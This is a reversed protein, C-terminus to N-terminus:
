EIKKKERKKLLRQAESNLEEASIKGIEMYIQLARNGEIEQGQTIGHARVSIARLRIAEEPSGAKEFYNKIIKKTPDTQFEKLYPKFAEQITASFLKKKNRLRQTEATASSIPKRPAGKKVSQKKRPKNPNDMLWAFDSQIIEDVIHNYVRNHDKFITDGPTIISYCQRLVEHLIDLIEQRAQKFNNLEKNREQSIKHPSSTLLYTDSELIKNVFSIGRLVAGRFAFLEELSLNWFFDPMMNEHLDKLRIHAAKNSNFRDWFGLNVPKKQEKKPPTLKNNSEEEGKLINIAWTIANEETKKEKAKKQNEKLEETKKRTQIQTLTTILNKIEENELLKDSEHGVLEPDKDALSRALNKLDTGFQSKLKNKEDSRLQFETFLNIWYKESDLLKHEGVEQKLIKIIRKIANDWRTLRARAETEKKVETRAKEEIISRITTGEKLFIEWRNNQINPNKKALEQAIENMLKIVKEEIEFIQNSIDETPKDQFPSTSDNNKIPEDDLAIIPQTNSKTRNQMLSSSFTSLAQEFDKVKADM